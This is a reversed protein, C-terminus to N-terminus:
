ISLTNVAVITKFYIRNSFRDRKIKALINVEPRISNFYDMPDLDLRYNELNASGIGMGTYNFGDIYEWEITEPPAITLNDLQKNEIAECLM